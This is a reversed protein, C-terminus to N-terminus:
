TKFNTTNGSVGIYEGSIQNGKIEVEIVEGTNVRRIFESYQIDSSNVRKQSLIQYAGMLSAFIIFWVFLNKIFGSNM